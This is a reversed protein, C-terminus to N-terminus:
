HQRAWQPLATQREDLGQAAQAVSVGRETILQVAKQKHERIKHRQTV